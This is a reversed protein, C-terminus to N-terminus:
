APVDHTVIQLRRQYRTVASLISGTHGRPAQFTGSPLLDPHGEGVMWVDHLGVGVMWVDHLECKLVHHLILARIGFLSKTELPSMWLISWHERERVMEKRGGEGERERHTCMCTWTCICVQANPSWFETM